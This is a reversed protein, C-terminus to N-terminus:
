LRQGCLAKAAEELMRMLELASRFFVHQAGGKVCLIRGQMSSNQRYMVEVVIVDKARVMYPIMWEVAKRKELKSRAFRKQSLNRYQEANAQYLFRPETTRPPTGVRDCLEDIALVLNDIGNFRIEKKLSCNVIEGYPLGGRYGDMCVLMVNSRDMNILTNSYQKMKKEELM